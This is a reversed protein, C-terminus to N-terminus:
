DSVSELKLLRQIVRNIESREVPKMLVERIGVERAREPSVATDTEPSSGSCLIVPFDPRITLIEQALMVGTMHPMTQDTILLDFVAPNKRFIDLTKRCDTEATVTYGLRELATKMGAVYDVEDDVFLIHGKGNMLKPAPIDAINDGTGDIRPFLIVFTTGINVISNVSIYGGHNKIIGHVISLGLGTGKGQLKTTYFPDFIRDLVDRRMGDGTDAVILKIFSGPQLGPYRVIEEATLQVDNLSIDLIGGKEHMADGANTCLNMIVQNIQTPDAKIMGSETEIHKRLEITTPLTARLMPLCEEIIEELQVTRQPQENQRSISRFQKVLDKGRLGAKLVLELSGYLPSDEPVDELTMEMNTIIIALINNFDHAIGGSLTAMAEMKQAQRLQRQLGISESVDRIIAVYRVVQGSDSFVPSVRADIDYESGDRKKNVFHGTLVKNSTFVGLIAQYFSPNRKSCEFDHISVGISEEVPVGCLAEFSPNIYQITGEADFTIVGDSTQDMVTALMLREDIERKRETKLRLTKIGYALDGALEELLGAEELDFADSQEDFIVLSGFAKGDEMLPLALCSAYGCKKVAERWPRYLPNTSLNQFVTVEGTRISTGAPGRGRETDAWSAQLDGLFCGKAGWHAVSRLTKEPSDEGFAVWAMRHGGVEVCIRCVNEMLKLEDDARTIAKTCESFSRLSRNVKRLSEQSEALAVEWYTLLWYLMGTSFAIFFWHSPGVSKVALSPQNLLVAFLKDSFLTWLGSVVFYGLAITLCTFKTTIPKNM